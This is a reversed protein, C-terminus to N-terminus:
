SLLSQLQESPILLAALLAKQVHLRNEAQDFVISQPGDMVSDTIEEGRHAPLCHMVRASSPAEKLLEDNIQYDQFVKKRTEHEEEEGMSAWVDTYLFDADQVAHKPAKEFSVYSLEDPQLGPEYDDPCSITLPFEFVEAAHMLSRCVNNGDGLYTVKFTDGESHNVMTYVDALAQCPHVHDTLANIIPIDTHEALLEIREHGFTRCAIVDVYRTLTRATDPITEGRKLQIDEPSMFIDDGGLQHMAVSFSVRTRTSPKEFLLALVQNRCVDYTEDHLRDTLDMLGMLQDRSFSEISLFDKPFEGLNEIM